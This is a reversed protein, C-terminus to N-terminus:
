LLNEKSVTITLRDGATHMDFTRAVRLAMSAIIEDRKSDLKEEFEKVMQKKQEDFMVAAKKQLMEQLASQITRELGSTAM